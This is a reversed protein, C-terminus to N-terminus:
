AEEGDRALAVLESNPEARRLESTVVDVGRTRSGRVASRSAGATAADVGLGLGTIATRAWETIGYGEIDLIGTGAVAVCGCRHLRV